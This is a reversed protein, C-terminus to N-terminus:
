RSLEQKLIENVLSPNAKGQTMKMVQGVFFGLLKGKGARYGDVLDPSEELIRKVVARIEGEDVLQTGRARVLEEVSGRGEYLEKFIEKAMRRSLTGENVLGLIRALEEPTVPLTCVRGEKGKVQGLLENIMWKAIVKANDFGKECAELFDALHRDSTIIGAEEPTLDKEGIFRARKEDPLEPLGGRIRDVWEQDIRLPTLDPEPLYRYDKSAEKSRMPRTRGEGEDWLRTERVVRGKGELVRRQREIEYSLARHLGRFSNMNKIETRPGFAEQGKLNADVKPKLSLNADCRLSGEEMNGDCIELYRLITRLKRLYAVAEDPSSMEPESVIEILPVGCRNFDILTQHEEHFSKGADEELHLRTIGIRKVRDRLEIVIYGSRALPLDYQTIQYGKPLDPYFYHKRSFRSLPAITCHVALAMIIAFDVAKRNLVPLAGPMGLCVPCTFTNPKAGSATSCGCFIKTETLLQAHVELGIVPEYEM